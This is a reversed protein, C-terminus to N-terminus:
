AADGSRRQMVEGSQGLRDWAYDSAQAAMVRDRGAAKASSLAAKAADLLVAAVDGSAMRQRRKEQPLSSVGGSATLRVTSGHVQFRMRAVVQCLRSALVLAGSEDTAPSIVGLDSGGARCLVDQERVLGAFSEALEGLVEDGFSTGHEVNLRGFRDVGVIVVSVPQGTRRSLSVEASLRGALYVANWLGTVPDVRAKTALLRSMQHLRLGARVRAKLEAADFPKNLYDLAGLELGLVKEATGTTGTMLIVPVHMLREDAKLRRCTEFGDVGPMEVDLLIVEPGWQRALEVGAAGDEAHRVEVPEDSLRARVVEFVGPSDDIVLVRSVM